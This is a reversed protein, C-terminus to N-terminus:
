VPRTRLFAQSLNGFLSSLLNSVLSAGCSRLPHTSINTHKHTYISAIQRDLICPCPIHYTTERRRHGCQRKKRSAPASAVCLNVGRTAGRTPALAPYLTLGRTAGRTPALAPYLTMGRTLDATTECCKMDLKRRIVCLGRFGPQTMSPVPFTHRPLVCTDAIELLGGALYARVYVYAQKV